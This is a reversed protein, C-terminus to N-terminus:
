DPRAREAKELRALMERMEEPVDPEAKFIPLRQLFRANRATGIERRILRSTEAVDTRKVPRPSM